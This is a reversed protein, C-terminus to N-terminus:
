WAKGCLWAWATEVVLVALLVLLVYETWEGQTRLQTIATPMDGGAPVIVPTFGLWDRLEEPRAATLSASERLDPNVAFVAAPPSRGAERLTYIGAAATDTVTVIRSGDKREQWQIDKREGPLHDALPPFLLSLPNTVTPPVTWSWTEGATIVGGPQRRGTFHRVIFMALPVHFSGPDASFHCWREDLSSAVLIVEGQGVDRSLIYPRGNTDRVLVRAAPNDAVALLSSINLRELADAYEPKRFDALFSGELVSPAAPHFPSGEPATHVGTIAAPLLDHGQPGLVATYDAPVVQDGSAIVLGGGERVYRGLRELFDPSLSRWREGPRIPVNLLYVLDKDDLQVPRAEAASVSEVKIFYNPSRSPNLATRVFHDGAAVPDDPNPTGDVLLVRVKDRVFVAEHRVNDGPLADGAIRATVIHVGPEDLSVTLTVPLSQGPDLNDLQVAEGSLPQGDMEVAVRVGKVAAPGTNKLRIVFPMRTRTHPITGIWGIGEIAVNPVQRTPHGCQVFVLRGQERIEECKARLAERQREFALRQLDTFVYVEKVPATGSNAVEQALALGPLLDSALATLQIQPILQRAQDLNFRQQPGILRARDACTVIQISSQPPLTELVALAADQARQLRTSEGDSAGMSYSVDMVFVADVAQGRSSVGWGSWGPRALALALLLIVLCRLILLIWEQFKLRRSTQEIAQKLFQMAAWPLPQYRARYFFHLVIPISIAAAGALMMPAAFQM